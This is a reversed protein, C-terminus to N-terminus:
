KKFVISKMVKNIQLPKEKISHTLIFSVYKTGLHVMYCKQTFVKGKDSNKWEWYYADKLGLNTNKLKSIKEVRKVNLQYISKAFDDFDFYGTDREVEASDSTTIIINQVEAEISNEELEIPIFTAVLWQRKEVNDKDLIMWNEPLNLKIYENEYIKPKLDCSIFLLGILLLKLYELM